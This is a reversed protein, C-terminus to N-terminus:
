WDLRVPARRTRHRGLGEETLLARAEECSPADAVLDLIEEAEEGVAVAVADVLVGLADHEQSENEPGEESSDFQEEEDSDSSDADSDCDEARQPGAAALGEEPAGMKKWPFGTATADQSAKLLDFEAKAKQAGKMSKKLAALKSACCGESAKFAIVVAVMLAVTLKKPPTAQMRTRAEALLPARAAARKSARAETDATRQKGGRLLVERPVEPGFLEAITTNTSSMNPEVRAIIYGDRCQAQVEAETPATLRRCEGTERKHLAVVFGLHPVDPPSDEAACLWTHFRHQARGIHTLLLELKPMFRMTLPFVVRAVLKELDSYQMSRLISLREPMSLSTWRDVATPNRAAYLVMFLRTVADSDLCMSWGEQAEVSTPSRVICGIFEAYALYWGLSKSYPLYLYSTTDGGLLIFLAVVSAVRFKSDVCSLSAHSSICQAVENCCIFQESFINGNGLDVRQTTTKVFLLGLKSPASVGQQLVSVGLTCILLLDTDEANVIVHQGSKLTAVAEHFLNTDERQRSPGSIHISRVGPESCSLHISRMREEESGGVGSFSVRGKAGLAWHLKTKMAADESLVLEGLASQWELRGKRRDQYLPVLFGRSPDGQLPGLTFVATPVSRTEAPKVDDRKQEQLRKPFHDGVDEVWAVHPYLQAWPSVVSRLLSCCVHAGTIDSPKWPPAHRMAAPGDIVYLQIPVLGTTHLADARVLKNEPGQMWLACSAYLPSGSSFFHDRLAVRIQAKPGSNLTAFGNVRTALCSPFNMAEAASPDGALLAVVAIATSHKRKVVNLSQGKVRLFYGPVPFSPLKDPADCNGGISKRLAWRAVQEVRGAAIHDLRSYDENAEKAASAPCREESAEDARSPIRPAISSGPAMPHPSSPRLSASLEKKITPIVFVRISARAHAVLVSEDLRVRHERKRQGSKRGVNEQLASNRGMTVNLEAGKTLVDNRHADHLVKKSPKIFERELHTDPGDCVANGDIDIVERMVTTPNSDLIKRAAPPSDARQRLSLAIMRLYNPCGGIAVLHLARKLASVLLLTSEHGRMQDSAHMDLVISPDTCLARHYIKATVSNKLSLDLFDESSGEHMFEDKLLLIEVLWARLVGEFYDLCTKLFGAKCESVHVHVHGLGVRDLLGNHALEGHLKFIARVLTMETHMQGLEYPLMDSVDDRRKVAQRRRADLNSKASSALGQLALELDLRDIESQANKRLHDRYTMENYFEQGDVSVSYFVEFGRDLKVLSSKIAATADDRNSALGPYLDVVLSSLANRPRALDRNEPAAFFSDVRQRVVSDAFIVREIDSLLVRTLSRVPATPSGGHGCLEMSTDHPRESCVLESSLQLSFRKASAPAPGQKLEQESYEAIFQFPVRAVVRSANELVAESDLLYLISCYEGTRFTAGNTPSVFDARMSVKTARHGAELDAALLIGELTSPGKSKPGRTASKRLEALAAISANLTVSGSVLELVSAEAVVDLKASIAKALRCTLQQSAERKDSLDLAAIAEPELEYIRLRSPPAASRSPDMRTMGVLLLHMDRLDWNDEHLRIALTEFTGDPFEIRDTWARVIGDLIRRSQNARADSDNNHTRETISLGMTSLVDRSMAVSDSDLLSAVPRQLLLTDGADLTFALIGYIVSARVAVTHEHKPSTIGRRSSQTAFLEHMLVCWVGSVDENWRSFFSSGAPAPGIRRIERNLIQGATKFFSVPLLSAVVSTIEAGSFHELMSGILYSLSAACDMSGTKRTSDIDTRQLTEFPGPLTIDAATDAKVATAIDLFVQAITSRMSSVGEAQQQRQSSRTSPTSSPSSSPMDDQMDVGAVEDNVTCSLAARPTKATILRLRYVQKRLAEYDSTKQQMKQVELQSDHLIKTARAMQVAAASEIERAARSSKEHTKLKQLLQLSLLPTKNNVVLFLFLLRACRVKSNDAELREVRETLEQIRGGHDAMGRQYM